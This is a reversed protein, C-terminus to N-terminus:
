AFSSLGDSSLIDVQNDIQRVDDVGKLLTQLLQKLYFTPLRGRLVLTGHEFHIDLHLERGRFRSDKELVSRARAEVPLECDPEAIIAAASV